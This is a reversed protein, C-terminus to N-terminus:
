VRESHQPLGAVRALGSGPRPVSFPKYVSRDGPATEAPRAPDFGEFGYLMRNFARTPPAFADGWNVFPSTGPGGGYEAFGEGIFNAAEPHIPGLINRPDRSAYTHALTILTRLNELEAQRVGQVRTQSLGPALLGVVVAAMALVVLLEIITLGRRRRSGKSRATTSM